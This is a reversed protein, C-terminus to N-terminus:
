DVVFMASPLYERIHQQIADIHDSLLENVIHKYKRIYDATHYLGQISMSGLKEKYYEADHCNVVLAFDIVMRDRDYIFELAKWKEKTDWEAWSQRDIFLHDEILNITLQLDELRTRTYNLDYFDFEPISNIMDLGGQILKERMSHLVGMTMSSLQEHSFVACALNFKYKGLNVCSEFQGSDVVQGCYEYFLTYHFGVCDLIVQCLKEFMYKHCFNYLIVLDECLIEIEQKIGTIVCYLVDLVNKNVYSCQVFYKDANIGLIDSFVRSNKLLLMRHFKRETEPDEESLLIIDTIAELTKEDDESLVCKPFMCEPIVLTVTTTDM